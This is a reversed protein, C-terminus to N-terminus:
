SDEHEGKLAALATDIAANFGIVAPAQDDPTLRKAEIREAAQAREDARIAAELERFRDLRARSWCVMERQTLVSALGEGSPVAQGEQEWWARELHPTLAATINNRLFVSTSKLYADEGAEV